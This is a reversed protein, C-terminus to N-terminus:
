NEFMSETLFEIKLKTSEKVDRYMDKIEANLEDWKGSPNLTPLYEDAYSENYADKFGDFGAIYVNQAHLRDMLRLACIVANDFHPWGRKVARYFNVIYENESGSNKVNSLLIRKIEKFTDPYATKAYECRASNTLFLYDYEYGPLLANVAIVVPQEKKIFRKIDQQASISTKGPAILLIKKSYNGGIGFSERLAAVAETDDIQRDQNEVYKAELIDYDYKKRDDPSLSEIINRMDHASTRHNNQLYAINNVHCCYMGAIFYPTSYGWTYKEQFGTMYIDIADMIADFDYNHNYKNNLFNIMLETTANGAGRGMGCLSSDIIVDREKDKFFRTCFMANAFAMQQNNHSHFGLKIDKDVNADLITLIKELDEEYMVGFTDVVAIGEPKTRNVENALEVLQETSYAMTNAAQFFVRYGKEKIQKGVQIGEKFKDVPFVVRIADVSKGDCEPLNDLDYRDWDIMVVYTCDANKEGLYPILEEPTHYYTTGYKHESNKLWGCEIIEVGANQLKSIVGRIAGEGFKGDVIYAGDRLTCDLLEVM